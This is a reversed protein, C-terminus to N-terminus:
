RGDKETKKQQHYHSMWKMVKQVYNETEAYPPIGGHRAVATPGANYAALALDLKGDFRKLMKKLYRAGGDLNQEIDLPNSVKLSAATGPMLQMLGMAGAPSIAEPHYSSETHIVAQLLEPQMNYKKSIMKIALNIASKKDALKRVLIEFSPTRRYDSFHITGQSDVFKFVTTKGAAPAPWGGILAINICLAFGSFSLIKRELGMPRCYTLNFGM